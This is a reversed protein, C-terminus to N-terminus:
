QAAKSSAHVAHGGSSPPRPQQCGREVPKHHRPARVVPLLQEPPPHFTSSAPTERLMESSDSPQSPQSKGQKKDVVQGPNSAQLTRWSSVTCCGPHSALPQMLATTASLGMTAGSCLSLPITPCCGKLSTHPGLTCTASLANPTRAAAPHLKSSSDAAYLEVLGVM